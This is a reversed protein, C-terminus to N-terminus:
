MSLLVPQTKINKSCIYIGVRGGNGGSSAALARAILADVIDNTQTSFLQSTPPPHHHHHHHHHQQQKKKPHLSTATAVVRIKERRRLLKGGAARHRSSMGSVLRPSSLARTLWRYLPSLSVPQPARRTARTFFHLLPKEVSANKRKTEDSLTFFLWAAVNWSQWLPLEIFLITVNKRGESKKSFWRVTVACSVPRPSLSIVDVDIVELNTMDGRAKGEGLVCLAVRNVPGRRVFWAPAEASVQQRPSWQVSPLFPSIEGRWVKAGAVFHQLSSRFSLRTQAPRRRCRSQCATRGRRRGCGPTRRLRRCCGPPATCTSSVQGM